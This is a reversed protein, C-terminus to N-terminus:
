RLRPLGSSFLYTLKHPLPHLIRLYSWLGIRRGRQAEVRSARIQRLMGLSDRVAPWYIASWVKADFKLTTVAVGELLLLLLQVAYLLWAVPTPTCALVMGARNRESLYRRRYTTIPQADGPRNGGFSSGQAHDYGSGDVVALAGGRLRVRACLFADEANSQMWAPFGGLQGWDDRRMFLCAGQVYAIRTCDADHNAFPVHFLDLRVGRDVLEGGARDFQPLTLAFPSARGIGANFLAQLAGPRLSADNNLLLLYEGAARAALRNNSVCYGVNADSAIVVVDPYREALLRLSGDTSADDHVLIEVGHPFDQSLVSQVCEDLLDEGNYNAICVSIAPRALGKTALSM